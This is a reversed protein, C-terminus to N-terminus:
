HFCSKLVQHIRQYSALRIYQLFDLIAKGHVRFVPNFVAPRFYKAPDQIFQGPEVPDSVPRYPVTCGQGDWWYKNDPMPSASGGKKM